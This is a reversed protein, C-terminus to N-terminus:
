WRRFDDKVCIDLTKEFIDLFGKTGIGDLKAISYLPTTALQGLTTIGVRKLAFSTIEDLGLCDISKQANRKNM